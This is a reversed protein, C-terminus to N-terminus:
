RLSLGDLRTLLLLELRRRRDHVNSDWLGYQFAAPVASLLVLATTLVPVGGIRDFVVFVQKGLWVPWHDGMVVYVGYLLTFAAALWVNIRGAYRTVRKVAWWALPSDGVEPRKAKCDLRM